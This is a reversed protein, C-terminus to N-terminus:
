QLQRQKKKRNQIDTTAMGKTVNKWQKQQQKSKQTGM